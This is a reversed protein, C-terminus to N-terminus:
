NEFRAKAREWGRVFSRKILWRAEHELPEAWRDAVSTIRDDNMISGFARLQDVQLPYYTKGALQDSELEYLVWGDSEYRALNDVLTDSVDDLLERVEDDDTVRLLDYLGFAAFLGGNLVHSPPNQPYEELWTGTEDKFTVGNDDLSRTFPQFALLAADLYEQDATESYARVFVSIAEGQAMASIWGPELGRSPVSITFPLTGDAMLHDRLWEAQILFDTIAAEEGRLYEEYRGLAYQSITVPNYAEPNSAGGVSKRTYDVIPIGAADVGPPEAYEGERVYHAILRMDLYYHTPTDDEIDELQLQQYPEMRAARIRDKDSETWKPAAWLFGAIGAVLALMLITAVVSRLSHNQV